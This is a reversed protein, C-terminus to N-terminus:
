KSKALPLALKASIEKEGVQNKTFSVFVGWSYKTRKRLEVCYFSKSSIQGELIINHCFDASTSAVMRQNVM